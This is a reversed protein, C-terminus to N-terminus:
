CFCLDGSLGSQFSARAKGIDSVNMEHTQNM